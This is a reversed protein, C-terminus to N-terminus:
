EVQLLHQALWSGFFNCTTVSWASKMQFGVKIQAFGKHKLYM